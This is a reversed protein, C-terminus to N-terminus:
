SLWLRLNLVCIFIRDMDGPWCSLRPVWPGLALGQPWSAGMEAGGCGQGWGLEEVEALGLAAQPGVQWRGGQGWRWM